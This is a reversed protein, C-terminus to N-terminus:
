GPRGSWPVGRYFKEDLYAESAKIINEYKKGCKVDKLLVSVCSIVLSLSPHPDVLNDGVKFLTKVDKDAFM